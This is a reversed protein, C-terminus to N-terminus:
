TVPQAGGLTELLLPLVRQGIRRCNESLNLRELIHKRPEVNLSQAQRAARKLRTESGSSHTSVQQRLFRGALNRLGAVAEFHTRRLNSAAAVQVAGPKRLFKLGQSTSGNSLNLREKPGILTLPFHSLFPLGHIKGVSRLQGLACSFTAVIQIVEVAVPHLLSRGAAGTKFASMKVLCSSAM